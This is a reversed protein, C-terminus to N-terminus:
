SLQLRIMTALKHNLGAFHSLFPTHMGELLLITFPICKRNKYWNIPKLIYTESVRIAFWEVVKREGDGLREKKLLSTRCFRRQM